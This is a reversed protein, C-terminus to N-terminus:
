QIFAYGIASERVSPVPASQALVATRRSIKLGYQVRLLDYLVSM